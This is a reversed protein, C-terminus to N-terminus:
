IPFVMLHPTRGFSSGQGLVYIHWRGEGWACPRVTYRLTGTCRGLCSMSAQSLGHSGARMGVDWDFWCCWSRSLGVFLCGVAFRLLVWSGALSVRVVVSWWGSWGLAALSRCRSSAVEEVLWLWHNRRELDPTAALRYQVMGELTEPSVEVLSGAVVEEEEVASTKHELLTLQWSESPLNIMKKMKTDFEGTFMETSFRKTRKDLTLHKNFHSNM